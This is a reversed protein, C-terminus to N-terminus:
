LGIHRRLFDVIIAKATAVSVSVKAKALLSLADDIAMMIGIRALMIPLEVRNWLSQLYNLSELAEERKEIYENTSRVAEISEAIARKANLYEPDNHDFRVFRDAAPAEEMEEIAIASTGRSSVSESQTERDETTRRRRLVGDSFDYGAFLPNRSTPRLVRLGDFDTTEDAKVGELKVDANM